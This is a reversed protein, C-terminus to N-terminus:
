EESKALAVIKEIQENVADALRQLMESEIMYQDRQKELRQIEVEINEPRTRDAQAASEVVMAGNKRRYVRKGVDQAQVRGIVEQLSIHHDEGCLGCHLTITMKDIDKEQLTYLYQM